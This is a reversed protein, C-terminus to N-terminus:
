GLLSSFTWKERSFTVNGKMVSVLSDVAISANLRTLGPGRSDKM